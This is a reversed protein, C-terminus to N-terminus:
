HIPPYYYDSPLAKSTGGREHFCLRVKRTAHEGVRGECIGKRQTQQEHRYPGIEKPARYYLSGM